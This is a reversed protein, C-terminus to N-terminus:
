GAMCHKGMKQERVHFPHLIKQWIEMLMQKVANHSIKKLKM